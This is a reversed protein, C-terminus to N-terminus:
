WHSDCETRKIRQDLLAVCFDLCFEDVRSLGADKHIPRDTEEVDPIQVASSKSEVEEISDNEEEAIEHRYLITEM